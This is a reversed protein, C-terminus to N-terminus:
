SSCTTRWRMVIDMPIEERCDEPNVKTTEVRMRSVGTVWQMINTFWVHLLFPSSRGFQPIGHGLNWKHRPKSEWEGTTAEIVRGVADGIRRPGQPQAIVSTVRWSTSKVGVWVM